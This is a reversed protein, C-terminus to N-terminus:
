DTISFYFCPLLYDNTDLFLYHSIVIERLLAIGGSSSDRWNAIWLFPPHRITLANSKKSEM